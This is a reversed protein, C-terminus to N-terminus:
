RRGVLIQFPQLVLSIGPAETGAMQAGATQGTIPDTLRISANTAESVLQRDITVTRREPRDSFSVVVLTRKAGLQRLATFVRPNDTQVERLLLEGRALEPFDERLAFLKRYCAYVARDDDPHPGHKPDGAFVEPIACLAHVAELAM